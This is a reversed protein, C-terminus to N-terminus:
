RQALVEKAPRWDGPRAKPVGFVRITGKSYSIADRYCVLALSQGDPSWAMEGSGCGRPLRMLERVSGDRVRVSYLESRAHRLHGSGFFNAPRQMWGTRRTVGSRCLDAAWELVCAPADSEKICFAIENGDPSWTLGRGMSSSSVLVRRRGSAVDIVVLGRTRTKVGSHLVFALRNARPSLCTELPVEGPAIEALKRRGSASVVFLERRWTSDNHLWVAARDLSPAIVSARGRPLEFPLEVARTCRSRPDVLFLRFQLNPWQGREELILPVAHQNLWGAPSFSYGGRRLAQAASGDTRALYVGAAAHPIDMEWYQVWEGDPSWALRGLMGGSAIVRGGPDRTPVWFTWVALGVVVLAAGLLGLWIVRKRV